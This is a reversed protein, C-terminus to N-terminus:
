EGNERRCVVGTALKKSGSARKAGVSWVGDVIRKVWEVNERRCVVGRRCNRQGVCCVQGSLGCGASLEKSGRLLSTGVSWVGGVPRKVWEGKEGRCVVSRRCNRQGVRWVQGSLGCEGVIGKVWEGYKVRCVVRASLERSGRLLSAGVSWVGDGIGKVWAVFKDRCVVRRWCNEQGVRGKRGSLGFEASLEKSGSARKAGVSWVGGGIGKVWAVNEGRCVVSRWCAGQGVCRNRGSLGCGASLERSGSALSSGVSWVRRCNRQGVCCVQGSLGCEALLGRSGSALSSGVSWVGGVIRKVWEGFKDRCVVSRWCAEQGVRWVQGSLGCAVSLGEGKRGDAMALIFM